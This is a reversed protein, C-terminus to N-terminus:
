WRNQWPYPSENWDSHEEWSATVTDGANLTTTANFIFGRPDTTIASTTVIAAPNMAYNYPIYFDTTEQNNVYVRLRGTQRDYSNNTIVFASQGQTAVFQQSLNNDWYQPPCDYKELFYSIQDEFQQQIVKSQDLMVSQELYKQAAYLVPINHYKAPFAFTDTANSTIDPFNYEGRLNMVDKGANLWQVASPTDIVDDVIRNIAQLMDSFQM